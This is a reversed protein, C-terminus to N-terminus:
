ARLARVARTNLREVMGPDTRALTRADLDMLCVVAQVSWLPAGAGTSHVLHGVRRVTESADILGSHIQYGEGTRPLRRIAIRAELVAGALPPGDERLEEPFIEAMHVASDSVKGMTLEPRMRGFGDLDETGIRGLGIRTLGLERARGLSDSEFPPDPDVGRAQAQAPGDVRLAEIAERLRPSWAFARGEGPSAHDFDVILTAALSDRFPDRMMFVAQLGTERIESVGGEITLPAGPRVEALYRVHIRTPILTAAAAQTYARPMGIDDALAGAAQMAKAIYARVNLHGLEDCEWANANGRWLERM